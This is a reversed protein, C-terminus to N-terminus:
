AEYAEAWEESGPTKSSARRKDPHVLKAMKISFVIEYGLVPFTKTVKVPRALSKVDRSGPNIRTKLPM